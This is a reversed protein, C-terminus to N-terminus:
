LILPHFLFLVSRGLVFLEEGFTKAGSEGCQEQIGKGLTVVVSLDNSMSM